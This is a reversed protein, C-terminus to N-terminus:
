KRIMSETGGPEPVNFSGVAPSPSSLPHSPQIADGVHHVQTEAPEPLQHHVPLGLMSCDMPNCLAPCSKTVSSFQIHGETDSIMSNTIGITKSNETDERNALGLTWWICAILSSPYQLLRKFQPVNIREQSVYCGSCCVHQIREERPQGLPCLWSAATFHWRKRPPAWMHM